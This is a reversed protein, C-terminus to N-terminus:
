YKELEEMMFEWIHPNIKKCQKKKSCKCAEGPYFGCGAQILRHITRKKAMPHRAAAHLIGQNDSDKGDVKSGLTMLLDMTKYAGKTAAYFAATRFHQDKQQINAGNDVLWQVCTPINSAAAQFLITQDSDDKHNISYVKKSLLDSLVERNGTDIFLQCAQNLSCVGWTNSTGAKAGKSVLYRYCHYCRAAAYFLATEGASNTSDVDIDKTELLHIYPVVAPFYEKTNNRVVKLDYFKEYNTGEVFECMSHQTKNDGKLGALSLMRVAIKDEDSLVKKGPLMALSM